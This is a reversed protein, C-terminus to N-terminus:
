PFNMIQEFHPYISCKSYYFYLFIFMESIEKMLNKWFEKHYCASLLFCFDKTKKASYRQNNGAKQVKKPCM